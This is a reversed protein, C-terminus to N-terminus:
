WDGLKQWGSRDVQLIGGRGATADWDPLVWRVAPVGNLAFRHQAPRHTHGHIMTTVGARSMERGVEADNVDMLHGAKIRKEHESRERLQRAIKLREDLPRALFETQWALDRTQARFQQYATDDICLADGHALLVPVGFLDIVCPDELLRADGCQTFSRHEAVGPADILFDRNGRMVFVALGSTSLRALLAVTSQTTADAQDDGVWVEFLDGLLFLHTALTPARELWRWFQQATARDHEGLHIDSVFWACDSGGLAIPPNTPNL